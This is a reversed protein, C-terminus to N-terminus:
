INSMANVIAQRATPASTARASGANPAGTLAMGAKRQTEASRQAIFREKAMELARRLDVARNNTRQFTHDELVDATLEQLVPNELGPLRGETILHNLGITINDREQQVEAAQAVEAQHEPTVPVFMGQLRAGFGIPDNVFGEHLEVARAAIHDFQPGHERLLEALAERDAADRFGKDISARTSKDTADIDKAKLLFPPEQLYHRVLGNIVHTVAAHNGAKAHAELEKNTAIVHKVIGLGDQFYAKLKQRSEASREWAQSERDIPRVGSEDEVFDAFHKAVIARRNKADAFRERDAIDRGSEGSGEDGDDDPETSRAPAPRDASPLPSATDVGASSFASELAARASPVSGNEETM